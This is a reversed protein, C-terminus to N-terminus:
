LPTSFPPDWLVPKVIYIHIYQISILTCTLCLALSLSLSLTHSFSLSCSLTLSCFLSCSFLLTLSLVLSLLLSFSCSLTLTLFLLLSYSFLLSCSLANSRLHSFLLSCYLLLSHSLTLSTGIGQTECKLWLKIILANSTAMACMMARNQIQYYELLAPLMNQVM